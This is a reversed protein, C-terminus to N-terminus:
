LRRRRFKTRHLAFLCIAWPHCVFALRARAARWLGNKRHFCRFAATVRAWGATPM